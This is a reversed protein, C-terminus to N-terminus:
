ILQTYHRKEKIAVDTISLFHNRNCSDRSQVIKHTMMKKWGSSMLILCGQM